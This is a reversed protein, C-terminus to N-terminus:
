DGCKMSFGSVAGTLQESMENLSQAANVVDVVGKSLSDAISSLQDTSASNQQAMAASNTISDNVQQAFETMIRTSEMNEHAVDSTQGMVSNVESASNCVQESIASIQAIQSRVQESAKVIGKMSEGALQAMESGANVKSTGTEMASISESIGDQTAKILESIKGTASATREALKRVEDAVVAFGRGHEGARAAEIAANLALLNTQAAIDDIVNTFKGIEESKVSLQSIKESADHVTDKINQMEEVTQEVKESASKAAQITQGAAQAVQMNGMEMQETVENVNEASKVASEIYELQQKSGVDVNDIKVKLDSVIKATEQTKTTENSIVEFIEHSFLAVQETSQGYSNAIENLTLSSESLQSSINIVQDIVSYIDTLDVVYEIAGVLKGENDHLPTAGYQVPIHEEGAPIITRDQVTMGSEIARRAACNSTGCHESKLVDWCKMKWCEKPSMGVLEACCDNIFQIEYNEDIALVPTPIGDLYAVKRKSHLWSESAHDELEAIKRRMQEIEDLLQETSKEDINAKM